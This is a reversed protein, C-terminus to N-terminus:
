RMDEYSSGDYDEKQQIYKQYFNQSEKRLQLIREEVMQYDHKQFLIKEFEAETCEEPLSLDSLGLIELVDIVKQSSPKVVFQTHYLASFITGHFTSTYVYRAGSLIAGFELPSCNLYEDCWVQPLSVAVTKLHYKNAIKRILERTEDDIIYSYVAIYDCKPIKVDEMKKMYKRIDVQLTPDCIRAVTQVGYGKLVEATYKDRVLIGDLKKLGEILDPYQDFGNLDMNGVSVAYGYKRKALIGIGYLFPNQFAPRRTNWIEDSGLLLVDLQKHQSRRVSVIEGFHSWDKKYTVYKKYKEKAHELSKISGACFRLFSKVSRVSPANNYGLYLCLTTFRSRTRLFVPEDGNQIVLEQMGLAQLFSGLNSSDHVTVIGVKM